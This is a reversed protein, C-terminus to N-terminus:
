GSWGRVEAFKVGEGASGMMVWGVYSGVSSVPRVASMKIGTAFKIRGRTIRLSVFHPPIFNRARLNDELGVFVAGAEFKEFGPHMASLDVERLVAGTYRSVEFLRGDFVAYLLSSVTNCGGRMAILCGTGLAYAEFRLVDETQNRTITAVHNLEAAKDQGASWSFEYLSLQRRISVDRAAFFNFGDNRDSFVVERDSNESYFSSDSVFKNKQVDFAGAKGAGAIHLLLNRRNFSPDDPRFGSYLFAAARSHEGGGTPHFINDSCCSWRPIYSM